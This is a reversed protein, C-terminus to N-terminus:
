FGSSTICSLLRTLSFFNAPKLDNFLLYMPFPLFLKVTVFFNSLDSDACFLAIHLLFARSVDLSSNFLSFTVHLSELHLISPQDYLYSSFNCSLLLLFWVGKKHFTKCPRPHLFVILCFFEFLVLSFALLQLDTTCKQIFDQRSDQQPDLM